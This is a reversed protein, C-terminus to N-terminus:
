QELDPLQIDKSRRDMRCVALLGLAVCLVILFYAVVYSKEAPKQEGVGAERRQAHADAAMPGALAGASAVALCVALTIRRGWHALRRVLTTM